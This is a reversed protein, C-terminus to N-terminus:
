AKVAFAALAAFLVFATGCLPEQSPEASSTEEGEPFGFDLSNQGDGAPATEGTTEEYEGGEGDVVKFTGEEEGVVISDGDENTMEMGGFPSETETEEPESEPEPEPETATTTTTTGGVPVTEGVSVTTGAFASGMFLLLMAFAFMNRKM